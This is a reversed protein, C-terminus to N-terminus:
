QSEPVDGSLPLVTGMQPRGLGQAESHGGAGQGLGSVPGTDWMKVTRGTMRVPHSVLSKLGQPRAYAIGEAQTLKERTSVLLRSRPPGRNQPEQEPLEEEPLHSDKPGMVLFEKRPRQIFDVTTTYTLM